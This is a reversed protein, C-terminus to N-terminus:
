SRLIQVTDILIGGRVRYYSIIIALGLCSEGGAITLIVFIYIQGLLDDMYISFLIMNFNISLLMIELCFLLLLINKRNFIFGLVGIFFLISSVFLFPNFFLNM